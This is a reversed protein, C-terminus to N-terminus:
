FRAAFNMGVETSRNKPEYLVIPQGNGDTGLLEPESQDISWYRLYPEIELRLGATNKAFRLAVSLGRGRKQKNTVDPLAASLDSLNSRQRGTWFYRYEVAIRLTDNGLKRDYRVGVPSYIYTSTRDYGAPDHGLGDFLRRYGVGVYGIWRTRSTSSLSRGVLGRGEFITNFNNAVKYSEGTMLRGDYDIWGISYRVEASLFTPRHVSCSGAVGMMMGSESMLGPEDYKIYSLQPGVECRTRSSSQKAKSTPAPVSKKTRALEIPTSGQAKVVVPKAPAPAPVPKTAPDLSVIHPSDSRGSHGIIRGSGNRVEFYYQVTSGQMHSAPIKATHAGGSQKTLLRAFISSGQKRVYLLLWCDDCGPTTATLYLPHNPAASDVVDHSLTSDSGSDDAAAPSALGVTLM